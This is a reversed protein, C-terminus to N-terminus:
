SILLITFYVVNFLDVFELIPQLKFGIICLNGIACYFTFNAVNLKLVLTGFVFLITYIFMRSMDNYKFICTEM